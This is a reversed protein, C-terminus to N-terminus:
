QSSTEGPRAPHRRAPSAGSEVAPTAPRTVPWDSPPFAVGWFHPAPNLFEIGVRPGKDSAEGLYVVRCEVEEEIAPNVVVVETGIEISEDLYLLAGHANVVITETLQQFLRGDRNRGKVLIRIRIFLRSSRRTNATADPNEM